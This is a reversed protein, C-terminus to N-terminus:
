RSVGGGSGRKSHIASAPKAADDFVVRLLQRKTPDPAAEHSTDPDSDRALKPEKAKAPNDFLPLQQDTEYDSM